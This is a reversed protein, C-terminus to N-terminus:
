SVPRAQHVQVPESRCRNAPSNPVYCAPSLPLSETGSPDGVTEAEVYRGRDRRRRRGEQRRSLEYLDKSKPAILGDGVFREGSRQAVSRLKHIADKAQSRTMSITGDGPPRSRSLRFDNVGVLRGTGMEGQKLLELDNMLDDYSDLLKLTSAPM